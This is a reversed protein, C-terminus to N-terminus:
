GSIAPNRATNARCAFPTAIFAFQVVRFALATGWLLQRTMEAVRAEHTGITLILATKM